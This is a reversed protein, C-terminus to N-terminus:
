KLISTNDSLLNTEEPIPDFMVESNDNFSEIEVTLHINEFLFQTFRDYRAYAMQFANIDVNQKFAQFHANVVTTYLSADNKHLELLKELHELYNSFVEPYKNLLSLM